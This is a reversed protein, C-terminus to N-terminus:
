AAKNLAERASILAALAAELRERHSGDTPIPRPAHVEGGNNAPAPAVIAQGRGIAVM